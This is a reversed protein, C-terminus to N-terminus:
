QQWIRDPENMTHNCYRALVFLYDSLRNLYIIATQFHERPTDGDLNDVLGVVHREARRCVTRAIHARAASVHGGPLIFGKLPPLKEELQDIANELFEITEKSFPTLSDVSSSDPATALLAGMHFLDSQIQDITGICEEQKDTLASLLAGLVSNLEDVDGYAEVQIHSKPIREGSLLSTTGKDGASTYIKM